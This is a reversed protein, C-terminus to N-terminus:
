SMIYPEIFNFWVENGLSSFHVGDVSYDSILKGDSGTMVPAIDLLTVNYQTALEKIIANAAKIKKNKAYVELDSLNNGANTIPAITNLYVDIDRALLEQILEEYHIKFVSVDFSSSLANNGGIAVFCQKVELADLLCLRKLLDEVKDGGVGLNVVNHDPYASVWDAGIVRSDGFFAIDCSYPELSQTWVAVMHIYM